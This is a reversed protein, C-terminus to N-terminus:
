GSDAERVLVSWAADQVAWPAPHLSLVQASGPARTLHDLHVFTARPSAGLVPEGSISLDSEALVHACGAKAPM